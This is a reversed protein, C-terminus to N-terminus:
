EALRRGLLACGRAAAAIETRKAACGALAGRTRGRFVLIVLSLKSALCAAFAFNGVRVLCCAFCGTLILRSPYLIMGAETKKSNLGTLFPKEKIGGGGGMLYNRNQENM